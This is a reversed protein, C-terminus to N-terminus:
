ILNKWKETSYRKHKKLIQLIPSKFLISSLILYVVFSILNSSVLALLNNDILQKISLGTIITISIAAINLYISKLNKLGGNNCKTIIHLGVLFILQGFLIGIAIGILGWINSLFYIILCTAFLTLIRVKLRLNIKNIAEALMYYPYNIFLLVNSLSLLILISSSQEYEKTYLVSIIFKSNLIIFGLIILGIEFLLSRIQDFRKELQKRDSSIRHLDPLEVLNLSSPILQTLNIIKQGASYIGLNYSGLLNKIIIIDIRSFTYDLFKSLSFIIGNRFYDKFKEFSFRFEIKSFIDYIFIALPIIASLTYGLAVDLLTIPRKCIILFLIFSIPNLFNILWPKIHNNDVRYYSLCLPNSIANLLSGLYILIASYKLSFEYNYYIIYIVILTIISLSTRVIMANTFLIPVLRQNKSAEMIFVHEGGLGIILPIISSFTLMYIYNGYNEVGLNRAIFVITLASLVTQFLQLFIVIFSSKNM